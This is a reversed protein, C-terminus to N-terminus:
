LKKGVWVMLQVPRWSMIVKSLSSVGNEYILQKGVSWVFTWVMLWGGMGRCSSVLVKATIKCPPFFDAVSSSWLSTMKNKVTSFHVSVAYSSRRELLCKYMNQAVQAARIALSGCGEPTCGTTAPFTEMLGWMAWPETEELHSLDTKRVKNRSGTYHCLTHQSFNNPM